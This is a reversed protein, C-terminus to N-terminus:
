YFRRLRSVARGYEKKDKVVCVIETLELVESEKNRSGEKYKFRIRNEDIYWPKSIWWSKIYGKSIKVLKPYKEESKKRYKFWPTKREWTFGGCTHQTGRCCRNIGSVDLAVFKSADEATEFSVTEGTRINTGIVNDM